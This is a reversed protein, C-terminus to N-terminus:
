HFLQLMEVYLNSISMKTLVASGLINERRPLSLGKPIHKKEMYKCNVLFM